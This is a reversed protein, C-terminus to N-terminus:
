KYFLEPNIRILKDDGKKPIGRGDTNNTLIYFYKDPGVVITRLRGWENKFYEKFDTVKEGSLTAKYIAAGRLGVFFLSDKYFVVQGPAWTDKTGSEIVPTVMGDKSQQGKITPWGYNKGAYILNLEDNGTQLGSPGHETSWLRGSSDWTIGQPNRHGYSYVANKFPNDGPISGDDNVRLIKGNLDNTVQASDPNQADGATIYLLGDPGFAMRGGDHNSAGLIGDLVTKKNQLKGGVLEYRDVRNLLLNNNRYTLYFYIYNNKSFNPHLVTGLLGGEGRAGVDSFTHITEVQGNSINIKVVSGERQTVLANEADQFVIEWPIDLNQAVVEIDPHEASSPTSTENNTEVVANTTNTKGIFDALDYKVALTVGVASLVLVIFIYKSMYILNYSFYRL